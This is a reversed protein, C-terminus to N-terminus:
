MLELVTGRCGQSEGARHSVGAGLLGPEGMEQELCWWATGGASGQVLGRRMGPSGRPNGQLMAPAAGPSDGLVEM